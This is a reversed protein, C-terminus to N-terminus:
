VMAGDVSVLAKEPGPPAAPLQRELEWVQAEQLAEYAAGATQTQRRATAESVQVRRLRQLMQTARRFPMWSGLHVLEDHLAPTFSGPLLGLEEDLPSFVPEVAPAPEM